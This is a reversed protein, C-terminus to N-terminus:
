HKYEEYEKKMLLARDTYRQKEEAGMQRWAKGAEALFSKSQMSGISNVRLDKIYLLYPSIPVPPAM